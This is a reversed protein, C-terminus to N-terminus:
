VQEPLQAQDRRLSLLKERNKGAARVAPRHFIMSGKQRRFSLGRQLIDEAEARDRVTRFSVSFVQRFYRHFLLAFCDSCGQGINRLLDDDPLSGVHEHASM